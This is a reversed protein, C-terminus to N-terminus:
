LFESPETFTPTVVISDVSFNSGYRGAPTQQFILLHDLHYSDWTATFRTWHQYNWNVQGSWFCWGSLGSVQPVYGSGMSYSGGGGMSGYLWLNSPYGSIIYSYLYLDGTDQFGDPLYGYGNYASPFGVQIYSTDYQGYGDMYMWNNDYGGTVAYPYDIRGSGWLCGYTYVSNSYLQMEGHGICWSGFYPFERQSNFDTIGILEGDSQGVGVQKIEIRYVAVRNWNEWTSPYGLNSGGYLTWSGTGCLEALTMSQTFTPTWDSPGSWSIDNGITQTAIWRIDSEVITGDINHCYVQRLLRAEWHCFLHTGSADITTSVYATSDRDFTDEGMYDDAQINITLGTPNDLLMNPSVISDAQATPQTTSQKQSEIANAAAVAEAVTANGYERGNASENAPLYAKSPQATPTTSTNQSLDEANRLQEMPIYPHGDVYYVSPKQQQSTQAIAPNIGLLAFTSILMVLLLTISIAKKSTRM